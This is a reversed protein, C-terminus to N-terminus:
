GYLSINTTNETTNNIFTILVTIKNAWIYNNRINFSHTNIFYLCEYIMFFFLVIIAFIILGGGGSNYSDDVDWPKGYKSGDAYVTSIVSFFLFFTISFKRVFSKISDM